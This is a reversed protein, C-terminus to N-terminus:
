PHIQVSGQTIDREPQTALHTVKLPPCLAVASKSSRHGTTAPSFDQCRHSAHAPPQSHRDSSATHPGQRRSRSSAHSPLLGRSLVWPHPCSSPSQPSALGFQLPAVLWPKDQREGQAPPIPWGKCGRLLPWPCHQQFKAELGDQPLFLMSVIRSSSHSPFVANISWKGFAPCTRPKKGLLLILLWLVSDRPAGTGFTIKFSEDSGEM